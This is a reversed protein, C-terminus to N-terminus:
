IRHTRSCSLELGQRRLFICIRWYGYRLSQASLSKMADTVPADKAPLGLTNGM